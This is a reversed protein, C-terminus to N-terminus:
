CSFGVISLFNFVGLCPNLYHMFLALNGGSFVLEVSEHPLWLMNLLVFNLHHTSYRLHLATEFGRQFLMVPQGFSLLEFPHLPVLQSFLHKSLM